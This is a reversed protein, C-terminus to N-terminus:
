DRRHLQAWGLAAFGLSLLLRVGIWLPREGILLRSIALLFFAIAISIYWWGLKRSRFVRM